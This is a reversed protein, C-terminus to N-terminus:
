SWQDVLGMRKMLEKRHQRSKVLTGGVEGMRCLNDDVYPQWDPNSRTASMVRRKRGGCSCPLDVDDIGAWVDVHLGCGSCEYDYIPM